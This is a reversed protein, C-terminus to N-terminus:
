DALKDKTKEIVSHYKIISLYYYFLLYYYIFYKKEQNINM